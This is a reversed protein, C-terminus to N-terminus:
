PWKYKLKGLIKRIEDANSALFITLQELAYEDIRMGSEEILDSLEAAADIMKDYADAERKTIAPM